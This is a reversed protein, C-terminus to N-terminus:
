EHRDYTADDRAAIYGGNTIAPLPSGALRESRRASLEREWAAFCAVHLHYERQEPSRGAAFEIEIQEAAIPLTCISCDLGSGTGGWSTEPLEAPLRAAAIAQRVKSGLEEDRMSETKGM